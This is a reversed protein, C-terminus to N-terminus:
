KAGNSLYSDSTGEARRPAPLTLPRQELRCGRDLGAAQRIGLRFVLKESYVNDVATDDETVM